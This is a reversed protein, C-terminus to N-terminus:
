RDVQELLAEVEPPIQVTLGLDECEATMADILRKMQTSDYTSSGPYLLVTSTGDHNNEYDILWGVGNSQWSRMVGPVEETRFNATYFTGYDRVFTRYVAEKTTGLVEALAQCLVWMYANANVSRSKRAKKLTLELPKDDTRYQAVLKQAERLEDRGKLPFSLFLDDVQRTIKPSHVLM